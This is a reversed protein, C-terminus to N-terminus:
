RSSIKKSIMGLFEVIIGFLIGIIIGKGIIKFQFSKGITFNVFSVIVGVILGLTFGGWVANRKKWFIILGILSIMGLIKWFSLSYVDM